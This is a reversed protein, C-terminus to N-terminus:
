IGMYKYNCCAYHYEYSAIDTTVENKVAEFWTMMLLKMRDEYNSETTKVSLHINLINNFQNRDVALRATSPVVFSGPGRHIGHRYVVLSCFM